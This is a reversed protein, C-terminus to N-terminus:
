QKLTQYKAKAAARGYCDCIQDRLSPDAAESPDDEAEIAPAIHKVAFRHSAASYDFCDFAEGLDLPAADLFFYAPTEEKRAAARQLLSCFPHLPPYAAVVALSILTLHRTM